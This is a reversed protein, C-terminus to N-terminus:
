RENNSTVNGVNGPSRNHGPNNIALTQEGDIRVDYFVYSKAMARLNEIATTLEKLQKAMESDFRQDDHLNPSHNIEDLIVICQGTQKWIYLLLEQLNAALENINSGIQGFEDDGTLSVTENLKGQALRYVARRIAHVPSNIRHIAFRLWVTTFFLVALLCVSLFLLIKIKIGALQPLSLSQSSANSDTAATWSYASLSSSVEVYIFLFTAFVIIIVIFAYTWLWKRIHSFGDKKMLPWTYFYYFSFDQISTFQRKFSGM